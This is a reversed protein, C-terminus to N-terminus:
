INLLAEITRLFNEIRIPKTVYASFGMKMANEVDSAMANASLAVVPISRTTNNKKLHGLATIGDM